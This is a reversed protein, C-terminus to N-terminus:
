KQDLCPIGFIEKLEKKMLERREKFFEEFDKLELSVSKPCYELKHGEAKEWDKLSTTSKHQNKGSSLLQLNPLCEKMRQWREINEDEIGLNKLNKTEFMKFPHCHDQEMKSYDKDPYLLSLLAFTRKEGKKCKQLWHDIDNETVTLNSFLNLSFTNKKCGNKKLESIMSKLVTDSSGSFIEKAFATILFKRVEKLFLEKTTDGGNFIYYAVPMTANYSALNKDCFGAEKLKETMSILCKRITEWKNHIDTTIQEGFSEIKLAPDKDELVLCVKMLYDRSFKFGKHNMINQLMDVKEKGKEWHDILKSFILDGKTLKTGTSNVKVFVDLANDLDKDIPFYNILPKSHFNTHLIELDEKAQGSLDIGIFREKIKKFDTEDRLNKIKFFSNKSKAQTETLFCFRKPSEPEMNYYLEREEEDWFEETDSLPSRGKGPKFCRYSGYIGINLSTIRQQGDLVIYFSDNNSLPYDIKEGRATRRERVKSLLKYLNPKSNTLSEKSPTWFIFSGIPYGALISEFLDEIQEMKWVYDRQFEPLLLNDSRVKELVDM